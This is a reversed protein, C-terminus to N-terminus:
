QRVRESAGAIGLEVSSATRVTGRFVKGQGPVRVRIQAGAAGNDLAVGALEIHISPDSRFLRVQRGARVLTDALGQDLIASAPRNKYVSAGGEVALWPKQPDDCSEFVLWNRDLPADHLEGKVRRGDICAASTRNTVSIVVNEPAAPKTVSVMSAALWVQQGIKKWLSM